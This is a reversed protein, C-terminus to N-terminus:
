CTCRCRTVSDAGGSENVMVRVLLEPTEREADTFDEPRDLGLLRALQADDWEPLLEARWGLAAAAYRLAALAHGVDHQCYRFAREGYKWAERWTISTLGVCFGGADPQHGAIPAGTTGPRSGATRLSLCGRRGAVMGVRAPRCLSRDSASQRQFPEDASVLEHGSDGESRFPGHVIRLVVGVCRPHVTATACRKRRVLHGSAPTDDRDALPLKLVPSGDFRRFPNPQTAWDLGGPGLAYRGPHHKTRDHYAIIDDVADPISPNNATTPKLNRPQPIRRKQMLTPSPPDNRLCSHRQASMAIEGCRVLLGDAGAPLTRHDGFQAGVHFQHRRIHARRLHFARLTLPQLPPLMIGRVPLLPEAHGGFRFETRVTPFGGATRALKTIGDPLM